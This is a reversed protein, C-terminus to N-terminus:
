AVAAAEVAESALGGKAAGQTVPGANRVTTKTSTHKVGPASVQQKSTKKTGGGEAPTETTTIQIPQGGSTGGTLLHIGVLMIIFGALILALRQFLDKINPIGFAKLVGDILWGFLDHGINGFIDGILGTTQANAPPTTAGGATASQSVGAASLIGGAYGAGAGLNGPGANYAELAKFINGGEQKLLDNMYVIYAKVEDSPNYETGPAVGARSAVSNYTSPLFQFMGEANSPSTAAANFASEASVQAAVVNYPIGTGSAAQQIIPVDQSPVTVM